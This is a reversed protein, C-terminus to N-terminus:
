DFLKKKDKRNCTNLRPRNLKTFIFYIITKFLITLNCICMNFDPEKEILLM